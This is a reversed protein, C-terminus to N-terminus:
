LPPSGFGTCSARAQQHWHVVDDMFPYYPTLDFGGGFWWVPKEGQGAANFFRVNMHTTPVYPNLPHIVLSVGM